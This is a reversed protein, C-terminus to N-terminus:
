LGLLLLFSRCCKTTFYLSVKKCYYDAVHETPAIIPIHSVDIAGAIYPIGHLTEFHQSIDSLQSPSPWQIFVDRCNKKLSHCFELVIKHVISIGVRFSDDIIYLPSGSALRTIAIAVKTDVAIAKRWKSDKKFITSTLQQCVYNFIEKTMWFHQKFITNKYSAM